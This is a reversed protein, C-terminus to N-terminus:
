SALYFIVAASVVILLVVAIATKVLTGWPSGIKEIQASSQAEHVHPADDHWTEEPM